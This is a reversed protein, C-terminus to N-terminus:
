VGVQDLLNSGSVRLNNPAESNIQFKQTSGPIFNGGRSKNAQAVQAMGATIESMHQMLGRSIIEPQAEPYVKPDNPQSETGGESRFHIEADQLAKQISTM